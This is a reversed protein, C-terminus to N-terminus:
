GVRLATFRAPDGDILLVAPTLRGWLALLLDSATGGVGTHAEATDDFVTGEDLLTVGTTRLRVLWTRDLDTATLRVLGSAGPEATGRGGPLWTDLVESVGDAALEAEVPEARGSVMQADWRHVATEHAMRRPWFATVKPRPSWNWAPAEPDAAELTAVLTAFAHDFWALVADRDPRTQPREPRDGGAEVIRPIWEYIRGLHIVLDEVTWDPCCPVPTAPDAAGVATRFMAGDRRLGALWFAKSVDPTETM